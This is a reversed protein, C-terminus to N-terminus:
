PLGELYRRARRGRTSDPDLSVYRQWYPAAKAPYGLDEYLEALAYLSALHEPDRDLVAKFCLEAGQPNEDVLALGQAYRYDVREPRLKVALSLEEAAKRNRDIRRYVLGLNYHAEALKADHGLAEEFQLIAEPYDGAKALSLGKNYFARAQARREFDRRQDADLPVFVQEGGALADGLERNARRLDRARRTDGYYDEALSTWTEGAEVVHTVGPGEAEGPLVYPDADIRRSKSSCGALVACGLLLLALGYRARM